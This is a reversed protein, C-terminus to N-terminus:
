SYDFAVGSGPCWMPFHCFCLFVDCVLYGLLGKVAPSWLAALFLNSLIVRVVFLLFFGLFFCRRPVTLLFVSSPKCMNSPVLRVM